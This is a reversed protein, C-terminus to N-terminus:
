RGRPSSLGAQDELQPFYLGRAMESTIYTWIMQNAQINNKKYLPTSSINNHLLM